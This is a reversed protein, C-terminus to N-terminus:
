TIATERTVRVYNVALTDTVDVRMACVFSQCFGADVAKPETTTDPAVINV